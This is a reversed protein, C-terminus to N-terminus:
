WRRSRVEGRHRHRGNYSWASWGSLGILSVAKWAQDALGRIPSGETRILPVVKRIRNRLNVWWFNTFKWPDTGKWVRDEVGGEGVVRIKKILEGGGKCSLLEAVWYSLLEIVWCSLLEAVWCSLLEAVWCSLLEIVWCSLLEIVWCSKEVRKKM